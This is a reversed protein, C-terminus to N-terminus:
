AACNWEPMCTVAGARSSAKLVFGARMATAATAYRSQVRGATGQVEIMALAEEQSRTIVKEQLLLLLLLLLLVAAAAALCCCCPLSCLPIAPQKMCSSLNSAFCKAQRAPAYPPACQLPARKTAAASLADLSMIIHLTIIHLTHCQGLHWAALSAQHQVGAAAAAAAPLVATAATHIVGQGCAHTKGGPREAM